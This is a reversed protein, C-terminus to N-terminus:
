QFTHSSVSSTDLANGPRLVIIREPNQMASDPLPSVFQMQAQTYFAVTIFLLTLKLKM